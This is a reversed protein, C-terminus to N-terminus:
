DNSGRERTAARRLCDRHIADEIAPDSGTDWRAVLALVEPDDLDVPESCFVCDM